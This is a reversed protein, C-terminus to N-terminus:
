GRYLLCREKAPLLYLNRLHRRILAKVAPLDGGVVLPVGIKTNKALLEQLPPMPGRHHSKMGGTAPYNLGIRIGGWSIGIDEWVIACLNKRAIKRYFIFKIAMIITIFIRQLRFNSAKQLCNISFLHFPPEEVFFRYM